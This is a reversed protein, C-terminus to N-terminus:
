LGSPKQIRTSTSLPTGFDPTGDDAAFYIYWNGGINMIEPAWLQESYMTNEPPIFVTKYDADELETLDETRWIGIKNSLTNTYYYYGEHYFVWPDAGSPLLPNTFTNNAPNSIKSESDNTKCGVFCTLLISFLMIKVM